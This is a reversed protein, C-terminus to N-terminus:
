PCSVIGKTLSCARREIGDADRLSIRWGDAAKTYVAFGFQKTAFPPPAGFRYVPAGANSQGQIYKATSGADDLDDGSEGNM